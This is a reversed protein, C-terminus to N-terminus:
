KRTADDGERAVLSDGAVPSIAKGIMPCVKVLLPPISNITGALALATANFTVATVGVEAPKIM